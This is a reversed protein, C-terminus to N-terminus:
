QAGIACYHVEVPTSGADYDAEWSSLTFSTESTDASTLFAATAAPATVQTAIVYTVSTLGAPTIEETGTLTTAGCVIQQGSSAYGLPYLNDAGFQLTGAADTNGDNDVTLVDAGGNAELTLLNNTQTTYGTVTLQIADAVGDIAVTGDVDVADLNTTGDVDLDGTIDVDGLFRTPEQFPPSAALVLLPLFLALALALAALMVRSIHRM